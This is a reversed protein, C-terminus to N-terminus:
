HITKTGFVGTQTLIWTSVWKIKYGEWACNYPALEVCKLNLFGLSISVLIVASRKNAEALWHVKQKYIEVYSWIWIFTTTSRSRRGSSCLWKIKSDLDDFTSSIGELPRLIDCELPWDLHITGSTIFNGIPLGLIDCKCYCSTVTIKVKSKWADFDLWNMKSDLHFNTGFKIINWWASSKM